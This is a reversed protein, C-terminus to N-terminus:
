ATIASLHIHHEPNASVHSLFGSTHIFPRVGWIEGNHRKVPTAALTDAVRVDSASALFQGANWAGATPVIAVGAGFTDHQTNEVYTTHSAGAPASTLSSVLGNSTNSNHLNRWMGMAYTQAMICSPHYGYAHGTLSSATATANANAAGTTWVGTSTNWDSRWLELTTSDKVAHIFSGAPVNPIAVPMGPYCGTTTDVTVLNSTSFVSVGTLAVPALVSTISALERGNYDKLKYTATAM